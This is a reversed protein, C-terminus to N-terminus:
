KGSEKFSTAAVLIFVLIAFWPHGAVVLWAGIGLGGVTVLVAATYINM